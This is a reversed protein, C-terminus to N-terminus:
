EQHTKSDRYNEFRVKTVLLDERAALLVNLQRKAKSIKLQIDEPALYSLQHSLKEVYGFQRIYFYHFVHADAEEVSPKRREPLNVKVGKQRLLYAMDDIAADLKSLEGSVRQLYLEPDKLTWDEKKEMEPSPYLEDDLASNHDACRRAVHYIRYEKTTQTM